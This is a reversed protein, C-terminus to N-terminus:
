RGRRRATPCSPSPALAWPKWFQSRCGLHNHSDWPTYTFARRGSSPAMEDHQLDFRIDVPSGLSENLAVLESELAAMSSVRALALVFRLDRHAAAIRIFLSIDQAPRCAAASLVLRREREIVPYFRRTDFCAPLSVLKGAAEAPLGAVFDPFLFISEVAANNQAHRLSEETFEFGHGRITIPIGVDLAFGAALDGNALGHCHIIDPRFREIAGAMDSHVAARSKGPARPEATSFVEIEVGNERMWSIETDVHSEPRQPCDFCCMLVRFHAEPASRHKSLIRMINSVSPQSLSQRSDDGVNSYHTSLALIRIPPNAKTYRLALDHDAHKTLLEDFGGLQQFLSRRHSFCNTDINIEQSFLRGWDFKDLRVFVNDRDDDWLMAAYGCMADPNEDYTRAVRSLYGDFYANDSDLYTIIEGTAHALGVNSAASQGRRNQRILKIAPHSIFDAIAIDLGDDSGDDIIILEFSVNKQALVSKIATRAPGARNWVPMIVSVKTTSPTVELGQLTAVIESLGGATRAARAAVGAIERSLQETTARERQLTAGLDDNVARQRAIEGRAEDIVSQQNALKGDLEDLASLPDGAYVLMRRAIKGLLSRISPWLGIAKLLAVFRYVM